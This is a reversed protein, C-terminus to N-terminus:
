EEQGRVEGRGRPQYDTTTGRRDEMCPSGKGTPWERGLRM